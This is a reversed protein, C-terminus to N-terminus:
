NSQAIKHPYKVKSSAFCENLKKSKKKAKVNKVGYLLSKM